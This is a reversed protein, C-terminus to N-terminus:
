CNRRAFVSAEFGSVAIVFALLLDKYTQSVWDFNEPVDIMEGFPAFSTNGFADIDIEPVEDEMRPIESRATTTNQATVGAAPEVLSSSSLDVPRDPHRGNTSKKPCSGLSYSPTGQYAALADEISPKEGTETAVNQETNWDGKVRALMAGLAQCSKLAETSHESSEKWISYSIQLANELEDRREYGWVSIDGSSQEASDTCHYLDLCIIMAAVLFNHVTLSSVYWRAHCLQGGPQTERHLAAQHGLLELAADVCSRRSYAYRQSSRASALYKRHLVCLSKQYLLEINFRRIILYEGDTISRDMFRMRLPAPIRAHRERLLKDLKLLEEYPVPAMAYTQEMILGFAYMISAKTNTYSVPTSDSEPREPPLVTTNQDFDEDYLNRPLKTDYHSERVMVPLGVQFSVLIDIQCLMAWMRRRMEGEFVSINPYHDSDRHFGMRMALRVCVGSLIWVSVQADTSRRYENSFHVMLTEVTHPGPKNYDALILCQITRKRYLARVERWTEFSGLLEPPEEGAMDFTSAAM